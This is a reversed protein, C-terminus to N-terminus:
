IYTEFKHIHEATSSNPSSKRSFLIHPSMGNCWKQPEVVIGKAAGMNGRKNGSTGEANNRHIVVQLALIEWNSSSGLLAVWLGMTTLGAGADNIDKLKSRDTDRRYDQVANNNILRSHKM